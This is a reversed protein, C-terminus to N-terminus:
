RSGPDLNAPKPSILPPTHRAAEAGGSPVTEFDVATESIPASDAEGAAPASRAAVDEEARAGTGLRVREIRFVGPQGDIKFQEELGFDM